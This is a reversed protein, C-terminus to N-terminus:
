VRERCSARGIEFTKPQADVLMQRVFNTGMEPLALSGTNCSIDEQTVGLAEASTFLSFIKPDSTDVDMVKIGTMDELVLLIILLVIVIWMTKLQKVLAGLVDTASNEKEKVNDRNEMDEGLREMFIVFM